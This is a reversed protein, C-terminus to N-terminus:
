IGRSSEILTTMGWGGTIPWDDSSGPRHNQPRILIQPMARITSIQFLARTRVRHLHPVKYHAIEGLIPRMAPDADGPCGFVTFVRRAGVEKVMELLRSFSEPTSAEDVIVPFAQGEDIIECRGPVVEVSEIGAM